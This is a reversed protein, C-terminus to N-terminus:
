GSAHVFNDQFDELKRLSLHILVDGDLGPEGQGAPRRHGLMWCTHQNTIFAQSAITPVLLRAIV